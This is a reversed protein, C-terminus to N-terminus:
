ESRPEYVGDEKLWIVLTKRSVGLDKALAKVSEGPVYRRLAEQRLKKKPRRGTPAPVYLGAKKLWRALTPPSTGLDKALARVSEGPVYRRLAEQRIKEERESRQHGGSAAEFVGADKLWNVLGAASVGLDRALASASRGPVYRKLAEQYLHKNRPQM